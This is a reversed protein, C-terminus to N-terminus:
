VGCTGPLRSKARARLAREGRCTWCVFLVGQFFRFLLFGEPFVFGSAPPSSLFCSSAAVVDGGPALCFAPGRSVSGVQGRRSRSARVGDKGQAEEEHPRAGRPM